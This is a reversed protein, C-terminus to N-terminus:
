SYLAFLAYVLLAGVIVAAIVGVALRLPSGIGPLSDPPAEATLLDADRLLERAREYGARPVMVDRPGAALFDPVDFGRTRRLTSPIGQDLLIGQILESDALNRGGTVRVPDGRAYQPRVKRARKHADPIPEQEGTGSYVLPMGCNRCFRESIPHALACRPCTLPEGAGREM